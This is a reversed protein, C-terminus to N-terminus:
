KDTKIYGDSVATKGTDKNVTRFFLETRAGSERRELLEVSISNGAFVM